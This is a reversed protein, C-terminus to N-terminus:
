DSYFFLKNYVKDNIFLRIMYIGESLGLDKGNFQIERKGANIKGNGSFNIKQGLMNIIEIYVDLPPELLFQITIIESGPNPFINLAVDKNNSVEHIGTACSISQSQRFTIRTSSSLSDQFEQAKNCDGKLYYALWLKLFDSTTAHQEARTITPSPSCTAEGFACNFNYDAFYCHGGGTIYVQTKYASATSDYIFDQQQAPPAVCDNTGSFVLVPVSVQQAATISSPNTNAAAFSVMTSIGSNNEAGLFSCGGGMSHGMIASTTGVSSVPVSTGAGNNQIETVLFKLDAGFDAHNPAFGGETTPFALIYGEPILDNWFNQYANWTMVFGHGFVIIPFVGAAIPTNNGAMTAPYYVETTISRNNRSPDIFTVQTHGVQQAHLRFGVSILIVVTFIRKLIM